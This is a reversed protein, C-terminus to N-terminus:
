TLNDDSVTYHDAVECEIEGDLNYGVLGRYVNQLLFRTSVNSHIHPDLTAPEVSTGILLTDSTGTPEVGELSGSGSGSPQSSGEGGGGCGALLGLSLALSLCISILRKAKM